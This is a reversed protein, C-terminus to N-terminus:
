VLLQKYHFRTADCFFRLADYFFCAADCFFRAADCILHGPIILKLLSTNLFLKHTPFNQF